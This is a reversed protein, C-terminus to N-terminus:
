SRLNAKIHNEAAKLLAAKTNKINGSAAQLLLYRLTSGLEAGRVSFNQTLDLAKIDLDKLSFFPSSNEIEKLFASFADASKEGLIQKITLAKRAHATGRKILYQAMDTKSRPYFSIDEILSTSEDTLKKECKLSRMVELPNETRCLLLAFRMDREKPSVSLKTHLRETGETKLACLIVDAYEKLVSDPNSSCILQELESKIRERSINNLLHKQTHIAAKTEEEATFGLVAMFRLARMIRLADEEFRKQPSGVCRLMRKKLDAQGGFPDVIGAKPHYAMANVTFDRRALDLTLSDTFVVSEPHRNDAYSGDIRYTTIEVKNEGDVATITGHKIATAYTKIPFLVEQVKQPPANTTIDYDHIERGLLRDRVCGGAFFAEFSNQNLINIIKEAFKESSIKM